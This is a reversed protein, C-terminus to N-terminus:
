RSSEEAIAVAASILSLHSLAQPVNGLFAGTAPDIEEAYLGVDNGLAVLRNMLAVAEDVRGTRALAEALWFSCSLFAGEGGALGDV